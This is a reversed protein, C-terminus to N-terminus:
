HISIMIHHKTNFYHYYWILIKLIRHFLFFLPYIHKFTYIGQAWSSMKLFIINILHRIGLRLEVTQRGHCIQAPVFLFSLRHDFVTTCITSPRILRYPIDYEDNICMKTENWWINDSEKSRVVQRWHLM